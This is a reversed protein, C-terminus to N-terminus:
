YKFLIDKNVKIGERQGWHPSGRGGRKPVDKISAGWARWNSKLDSLQSLFGNANEQARELVHLKLNVLKKKLRYVDLKVQETNCRYQGVKKM